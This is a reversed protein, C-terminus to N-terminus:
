RAGSHALLNLDRQKRAVLEYYFGALRHGLRAVEDPRASALDVQEDPDHALDYLEVFNLKRHLILKMGDSILAMQGDDETPIRAFVTADEVQPAGTVTQELYSAIQVTSAPLVGSGLARHDPGATWAIMPVRLVEEHLDHGHHRIGHEGFAEGHDATVFLLVRGADARHSLAEALRGIAADTRRVEIAYTSPDNGVFVDGDRVVYPAHPDFYHAWVLAPGSSAALVSLVSDTVRGATAGSPDSAARVLHEDVSDFANRVDRDVLAYPHTLIATTAYGHHSFFAALRSPRPVAREPNAYLDGTHLATMSRATVPFNAHADLRSWGESALRALAPCAGALPSAGAGFGCRFADITVLVITTPPVTPGAARPVPTTPTPAPLWGLCDHGKASLPYTKADGDDCDGGGLVASYGDGDRDLLWRALSVVRQHSAHTAMLKSWRDPNRAFSWGSALLCITLAAAIPWRAVRLLPTVLLWGVAFALVITAFLVHHFVIHEGPFMVADLIGLEVAAGILFTGSWLRLGVEFRRALRRHVAAAVALVGLLGCGQIVLAHPGTPSDAIREYAEYLGIVTADRAVSLAVAWGASIRLRELRRGLAEVPACLLAVAVSAPVLLLLTVVFSGGPASRISGTVGMSAAALGVAWIRSAKAKKAL